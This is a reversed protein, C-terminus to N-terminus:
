FPTPDPHGALGMSRPNPQAALGLSM